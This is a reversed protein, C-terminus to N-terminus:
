TIPRVTWRYMYAATYCYSNFHCNSLLSYAYPFPEARWILIDNIQVYEIIVGRISPRM